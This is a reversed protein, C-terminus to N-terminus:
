NGVADLDGPTVSGDHLATAMLAASVGCKKLRRLDEGNRIGGGALVELQPHNAALRECLVETGTGGQTGVRALDLLLVSSVGAEVAQELVDWALKKWSDGRSQPQGLRLDLSFLTRAGLSRCIAALADPGALTELGAIIREVGARALASADAADKIGADVWLRIGTAQLADYTAFAPLAGSIADLDAVYFERFGFHDHLANAVDVPVASATLASKIHRYHQRQGGVGHVVEGGLLDLVPVIKM